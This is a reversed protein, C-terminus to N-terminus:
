PKEVEGHTEKVQKRQGFVKKEPIQSAAKTHTNEGWLARKDGSYFTNDIWNKGFEGWCELEFMQCRM